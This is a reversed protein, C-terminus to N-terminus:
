LDSTSASLLGINPGDGQNGGRSVFFSQSVVHEAGCYGPNCEHELILSEALETGNGTIDLGHNDLCIKRTDQNSEQRKQQPCPRSLIEGVGSVFRELTHQRATKREKVAADGVPARPAESSTTETQKSPRVRHDVENVYLATVIYM